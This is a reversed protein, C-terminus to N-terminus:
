NVGRRGLVAPLTHILLRVDQWISWNTVYLYDLKVMEEFPIDTRGLVQWLGTIGPTLDLRRRGWGYILDDEAVPLPRPGVLSMDGRVVNLLQPLEDISTRRLIRGVRTIRPDHELFLWRPDKSLAQLDKARQEADAVMTRLKVIRFRRGARGIRDQTFFVTGPSTVKIALAAVVLVPLSILLAVAAIVIDISRKVLRSSRTLAPPNVGLVTIGAVDDIEVSPGLVDVIHPLITVRLGIESARRVSETLAEQEVRSSVVIRDIDAALCIQELEEITGTYPVRDHLPDSEDEVADIYGFADLDYEPHTAIKQALLAATRGGGIFLVREASTTLRVLRRAIGRAVFVSALAAVFFAVGERYVLKDVLGFRFWFWLLMGGVVLAHFLWPLDDVTSHSVRKADRDYLGYAKFILVWAPLSLLGWALKDRPEPSPGLRIALALAIAIAAVDAAALLRRLAFDRHTGGLFGSRVRGPGTSPVAHHRGTV